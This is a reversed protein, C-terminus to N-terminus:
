SWSSSGHACTVKENLRHKDEERMAIALRYPKSEPHLQETVKSIKKVDM